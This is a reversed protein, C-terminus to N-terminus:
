LIAMGSLSASLILVMVKTEMLDTYVKGLVNTECNFKFLLHVAPGYLKFDIRKSTNSSVM